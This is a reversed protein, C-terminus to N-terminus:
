LPKISVLYFIFLNAGAAVVMILGLMFALASLLRVISYVPGDTTAFIAGMAIFTGALIALM